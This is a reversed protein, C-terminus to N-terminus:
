AAVSSRRRRAAVGVIRRVREASKAAPEVGLTIRRDLRRPAREVRDVEVRAFELLQIRAVREVFLDRQPVAGVKGAIGTGVVEFPAVGGRM